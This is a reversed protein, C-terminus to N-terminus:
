CGPHGSGEMEWDTDTHAPSHGPRHDLAGWSGEEEMPTCPCCPPDLSDPLTPVQGSPEHPGKPTEM